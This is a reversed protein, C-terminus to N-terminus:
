IHDKVKKVEEGAAPLIEKKFEQFNKILYAKAIQWNKRWHKEVKGDLVKLTKDIIPVSLGGLSSKKILYSDPSVIAVAFVVISALLIGRFIGFFFGLLSNLRGFPSDKTRREILFAVYKAVAFFILYIFFGTLVMTKSDPKNVLFNAVIPALKYSLVLSAAIGILSVVEEVFGKNFGRILNWGLIVIILADLVNMTTM